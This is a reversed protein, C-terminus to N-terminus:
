PTAPVPTAQSVAWFTFAMVGLFLVVLFIGITTAAIGLIWGAMAMGAGGLTGQSARIRHHATLGLFIAVPGLIVAPVGNCFIGAAAVIGVVLAATARGEVPPSAYGAPYPPPPLPGYLPPPGVGHGPPPGPQSSYPPPPPPPIAPPEPPM